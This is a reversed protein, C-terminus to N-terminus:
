WSIPNREQSHIESIEKSGDTGEARFPVTHLFTKRWADNKVPKGAALITRLALPRMTDLTGPLSAGLSLETCALLVTQAGKQWLPVCLAALANRSPFVGAKAAAILKDVQIQAAPNPLICRIGLAALTTQYSKSAVTGRTALVGVSRIGNAQLFAANEQVIHLIPVPLDRCLAPYFAHATNCPIVLLRAGARLLAHAGHLLYPYPDDADPSVASKALRCLYASRDPTCAFSSFLFNLHAQDHTADTQETLLAAFRIGAAPGLGGLIGVIPRPINLRNPM